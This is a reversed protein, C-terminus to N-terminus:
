NGVSRPDFGSAAGLERLLGDADAVKALVWLVYRIDVHISRNREEDYEFISANSEYLGDFLLGVLRGQADLTPSGSNGSTADVSSLFDVPLGASRGPRKAREERIADLLRRPAPWVATDANKEAIGSITTFPLYAVGDRVRCGAVTGYSIRLTGNADPAVLGGSKELYAEAYLPSVRALEGEIRRDRERNSAALAELVGLMGLFPDETALLEEHSVDMLSLRHELGGLRTRAVVSDVHREIIRAAEAAGTSPSLGLLSDLGPIRQSPPLTAADLIFKRLFAREVAPDWTKQIRTLEDRLASRDREQYGTERMSDPKAREQSLRWLRDGTRVLDGGTSLIDALVVDRDQVDRRLGQLSDLTAMAPDYKRSRATDSAIWARLERERRAKDELLRGQRFGDLISRLKTRSNSMGAIRGAVRIAREEGLKAVGDLIALLTDSRRICHPMIWEIQDATTRLTLMRHTSGPFGALFVLEGDEVGGPDIRLWHRPRIPVNKASFPAPKGDRTGYVRYFAFDGSHRPWRWNDTEGGFAGITSPPAFVLRVDPYETQAIEFFRAGEYFSAIRCRDGNRECRTTLKGIRADIADRRAKPDMASDLGGLIDTTADRMSRTVLMRAGPMAPLEEARNRAHFGDEVLNAGARAHFQLTPEVCHHNTIVLGDPSVFSSSCGSISGVAGLIPGELDAFAAPAKAFGIKELRGALSPIQWPM